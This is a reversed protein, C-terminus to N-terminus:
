GCYYFCSMLKTEYGNITVSTLYQYDWGCTLKGVTKSRIIDDDQLEGYGAILDSSVILDGNQPKNNIDRLIVQVVGEGLSAINYRKNMEITDNVDINYIHGLFGGTNYNRKTDGYILTEKSQIVGMVCKSGKTTTIKCTPLAETFNPSYRADTISGDYFINNLSGSSEVILGSVINQTPDDVISRHFGTFNLQTHSGTDSLFSMQAGNVEFNLDDYDNTFISWTTTSTPNYVRIGGCGAGTADTGGSAKQYCVVNGSQYSTEDDAQLILVKDSNSASTSNDAASNLCFSINARSWSSRATAQILCKAVDTNNNPTGLFLDVNNNEHGSMLKMTYDTASKTRFDCEYPKIRVSEIDLSGDNVNFITDETSRFDLNSNSYICPLEERGIFNERMATIFEKIQISIQNTPAFTNDIAQGDIGWSQLNGSGPNTWAISSTYSSGIQLYFDTVPTNPSGIIFNKSGLDIGQGAGTVSTPTFTTTQAGGVDYYITGNDNFTYIITAGNSSGGGSIMTVTGTKSHKIQKHTDMLLAEDSGDVTMITNGGTDKFIIDKDAVGNSVVCNGSSNTINMNLTGDVTFKITGTGSDTVDIFSNGDTISKTSGSSIGSLNAGNGYLTTFSGVVADVTLANTLSGVKLIMTGDTITSSSVSNLGTLLGAKLTAVGDTITDVTTLRKAVLGAPKFVIGDISSSTITAEISSPILGLDGNVYSYFKWANSSSTDNIEIQAEITDYTYNSGDIHGYDNILKLNRPELSTVGSLTGAKLTATGDTITDVTTLRKAVLGASQFVFGDVSSASVTAEMGSSILGLDGNNYNYFKWKNSSSTDNIEIPATLGDYTYNSGDVHGYDKILRLYTPELYTVGTLSGGDMISIGDTITTANLTTMSGIPTTIGNANIILKNANAVDFEINGDNIFRIQGTPNGYTGNSAYEYFRISGDSDEVNFIDINNILSPM